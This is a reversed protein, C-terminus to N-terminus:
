PRRADPLRQFGSRSAVPVRERIAQVVCPLAEGPVHTLQKAHPQEQVKRIVGHVGRGRAGAGENVRVHQVTVRQERGTRYRKLAEM